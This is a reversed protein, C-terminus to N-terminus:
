GEEINIWSRCKSITLRLYFFIIVIFAYFIKTVVADGYLVFLKRGFLALLGLIAILIIVYYWFSKDLDGQKLTAGCHICVITDSGFLKWKGKPLPPDLTGFLVEPISMIPEKNCNPCKM